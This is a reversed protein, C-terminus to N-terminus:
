LESTTFTYTDYLCQRCYRDHLIFVRLNCIKVRNEVLSLIKYIKFPDVFLNLKKAYRWCENEYKSRFNYDRCCRRSTIIVFFLQCRLSSLFLTLSHCNHYPTPFFNLLLIFQHLDAIYCSSLFFILVSLFCQAIFKRQHLILFNFM